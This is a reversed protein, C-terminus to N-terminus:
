AKPVSALFFQVKEMKLEKSKKAWITPNRERAQCSSKTKLRGCQSSLPPHRDLDSARLSQKKKMDVTLSDLGLPMATSCRPRLCLSSFVLRPILPPHLAPCIIDEPLQLDMFVQLLRNKEGSKATPPLIGKTVSSLARICIALLSVPRYNFIMEANCDLLLCRVFNKFLLHDFTSAVFPFGPAMPPEPTSSSAIRVNKRAATEKEQYVTSTPVLCHVLIVYGFDDKPLPHKKGRSDKNEPEEHCRRYMIALTCTKGLRLAEEVLLLIAGSQNRTQLEMVTFVGFPISLKLWTTTQYLLESLLNDLRPLTSKSQFNCNSRKIM